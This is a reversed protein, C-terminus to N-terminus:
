ANKIRYCTKAIMWSLRIGYRGKIRYPDPITGKPEIERSIVSLFEKIFLLMKVEMDNRQSKVVGYDGQLYPRGM